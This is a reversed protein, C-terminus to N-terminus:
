KNGVEPKLCFHQFLHYLAIGLQEAYRWPQELDCAPLCPVPLLYSCTGNKPLVKASTNKDAHITSKIVKM